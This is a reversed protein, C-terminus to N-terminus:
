TRRPLPTRTTVSLLFPRSPDCSFFTTKQCQPQGERDRRLLEVRKVIYEEQPVEPAGSCAHARRWVTRCRLPWFWLSVSTHRWFAAGFPESVFPFPRTVGFHPVFHSLFAPLSAHFLLRGEVRFALVPPVEWQITRREVAGVAPCLRGLGEPGPDYYRITRSASFSTKDGYAKTVSVSEWPHTLASASDDPTLHRMM